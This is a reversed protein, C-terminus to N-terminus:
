FSPWQFPFLKGATVPDLKTGAIEAARALVPDRGAALDAATPLLIEDPVV